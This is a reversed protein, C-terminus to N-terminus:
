STMAVTGAVADTGATVAAGTSAGGCALIVTDYVFM